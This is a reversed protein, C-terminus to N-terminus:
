TCQEVEELFSLVAATDMESIHRVMYGNGEYANNLRTLFRSTANVSICMMTMDPSFTYTYHYRRYEKCVYEMWRKGSEGINDYHDTFGDRLRTVEAEFAVKLWRMFEDINEFGNRIAWIDAPERDLNIHTIFRQPPLDRYITLRIINGLFMYTFCTIREEM